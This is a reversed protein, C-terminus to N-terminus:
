SEFDLIGYLLCDIFQAQEPRYQFIDSRPKMWKILGDM